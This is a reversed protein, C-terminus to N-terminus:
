KGFVIDSGIAKEVSDKVGKVGAGTNGKILIIAPTVLESFKEIESKIEEALSETIYIIPYNGNALKKLIAEAKAKEDVPYIDLGLAQFGYISDYDGMVAVKLM